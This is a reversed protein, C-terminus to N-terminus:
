QQIGDQNLHQTSVASQASGADEQETKMPQNQLTFKRTRAIGVLQIEIESLESLELGPNM